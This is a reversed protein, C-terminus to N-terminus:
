PLKMFLEEDINKTGHLAIKVMDPDVFKIRMMNLYKELWHILNLFLHQDDKVYIKHIFEWIVSEHRDVLSKLKDYIDFSDLYYVEEDNIKSVTEILDDIFKQFGRFALHVDCKAFVAMLPQYFITLFKKILETLEPEQWLQKFLDKDRKRIQLQWYQKLNLYVESTPDIRKKGDIIEPELITSVLVTDFMDRGDAEERVRNIEDNSLTTYYEIREMYPEYGVLRERLVTLEKNFDSLDENLLMIFIMSLLNKSGTKRSHDSLESNWSFSPINVLLLDVIRSVMKMPNTYKLIGYVINHPFIRHFKKVKNFWEISNDQGIFVQYITAAIEVKSWANFTQLLPSLQKVDSNQGLEIFINSITDPYMVMRSKFDDFDKNLSLMIKTTQRQFEIQTQHMVAEHELRQQMDIKDDSSLKVKDSLLFQSLISSNKVEEIKVLAKLYGRLALRLKERVLVVSETYVDSSQWGEDSKEKHPLSVETLIGPFRSKLQKHLDKFQSYSKLVFYNRKEHSTQIIFAYHSQQTRYFPLWSSSQKEQRLKKVGVINLSEHPQHTNKRNQFKDIKGTDSPKYHSATLYTIEQNTIIVSNFFLLLGSLLKKNVQRRKTINEEREESHSIPKTNFSEIFPQLTEQWFIRQDKESNNTIFPFTALFQKFYFSLLPLENSDHNHSSKFPYGLLDCCNPEGFAHLENALQEELLYKKLFHEQTPTLQNIISSAM